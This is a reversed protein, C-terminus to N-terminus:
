REDDKTEADERVWLDCNEATHSKVTGTVRGLRWYMYYPSDDDGVFLQNLLEGRACVKWNMFKTPMPAVSVM